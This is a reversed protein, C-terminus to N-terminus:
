CSEESAICGLETFATMLLGRSYYAGSARVEVCGIGCPLLAVELTMKQVYEHQSHRPILSTYELRGNYVMFMEGVRVFTHYATPDGLVLCLSSNSRLM